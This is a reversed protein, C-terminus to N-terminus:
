TCTYNVYNIFINYQANKKIIKIRKKGNIEKQRNLKMRKLSNNKQKNMEKREFDRKFCHRNEM